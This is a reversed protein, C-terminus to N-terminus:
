KKQVTKKQKFFARMIMANTKVPCAINLTFCILTTCNALFDKQRQVRIERAILMDNVNVM